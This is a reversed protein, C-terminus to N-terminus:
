TNKRSRPLSPLILNFRGGSDRQCFDTRKGGQGAQDCAEKNGGFRCHRKDVECTGLPLGAMQAAIEDCIQYPCQLDEVM